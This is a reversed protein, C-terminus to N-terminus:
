SKKFCCECCTCCIFCYVAYTGSSNNEANVAHAAYVLCVFFCHQCVTADEGSRKQMVNRSEATFSEYKKERKMKNYYSDSMVKRRAWTKLNEGGISNFIDFAEKKNGLQVGFPKLFIALIHIILDCLARIPWFLQEIM